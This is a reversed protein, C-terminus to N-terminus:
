NVRLGLKKAYEELAVHIVDTKMIRGPSDIKKRLYEVVQEIIQFTKESVYIM